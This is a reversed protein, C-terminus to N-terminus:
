AEGKATHLALVRRCSRTYNIERELAADRCM